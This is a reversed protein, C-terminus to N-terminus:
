IHIIPETSNFRGIEWTNKLCPSCISYIRIHDTKKTLKRLDIKLIEFDPPSLDCEFVSFNVRIGKAKLTKEIRRRRKDSSIDYAILYIM